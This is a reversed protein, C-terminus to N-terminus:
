LTTLLSLPAYLFPSPLLYNHLRHVARVHFSGADVLLNVRERATLKGRAHQADIRKQGGGLEVTERIGELRKRFSAKLVMPSSAIPDSSTTFSLFRVINSRAPRGLTLMMNVDCVINSKVLLDASIQETQEKCSTKLSHLLPSEDGFELIRLIKRDVTRYFSQPM